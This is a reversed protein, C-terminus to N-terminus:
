GSCSRESREEEVGSCDRPVRDIRPRWALGAPERIEGPQLHAGRHSCLVEEANLPMFEAKLPELDARLRHREMYMADVATLMDSLPSGTPPDRDPNSPLMPPYIGFPCSSQGLDSVPTHM